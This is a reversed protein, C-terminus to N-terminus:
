RDRAWELRAEIRDLRERYAPRDIDVAWMILADDDQYYKKRVGVPVFGFRQYLARAVVNDTRVELTLHRMGAEVAAWALRHLLRTALRRRRHGPVVALTTVHAEDDVMLLGGYGVVRDDEEAVLYARDERELEERFSRESWPQPFIEQELAAVQGIDAATMPRISAM